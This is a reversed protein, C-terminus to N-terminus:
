SILTLLKLLIFNVERESVLQGLLRNQDNPTISMFCINLLFLKTFGM